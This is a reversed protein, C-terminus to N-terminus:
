RTVLRSIDNVNRSNTKAGAIKAKRAFARPSSEGWLYEDYQDDLGEM